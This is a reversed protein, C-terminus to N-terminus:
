PPPYFYESIGQWSEAFNHVQSAPKHILDFLYQYEEGISKIAIYIIFFVTCWVYTSRMREVDCYDFMAILIKQREEKGIHKRPVSSVCVCVCVCVDSLTFFIIVPFEQM